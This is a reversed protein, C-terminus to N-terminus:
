AMYIEEFHLIDLRSNIDILQLGNLLDSFEKVSETQLMRFHQLFDFTALDIAFIQASDKIYNNFLELELTYAAEIAEPLNIFNWETSVKPITPMCNWDIIYQQLKKAHELEAMAEKAFFAAAKMYGVGACWNSAANYFYHAKYEDGIRANLIKVIADSLKIPAVTKLNEAPGVAGNNIGNM